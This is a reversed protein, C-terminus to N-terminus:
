LQQRQTLAGKFPVALHILSPYAADGLVIAQDPVIGTDCTLLKYLPSNRFVKADHVSGPWGTYVDLIHLNGDFMLQTQLSYQGKRNYYCEKHKKPPKIVIHTGDVAGIINKIGRM